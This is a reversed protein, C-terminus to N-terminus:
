LTSGFFNYSHLSFPQRLVHAPFALLMMLTLKGGYANSATFRARQSPTIKIELIHDDGKSAEPITQLTLTEACLFWMTCGSSEFLGCTKGVILLVKRGVQFCRSSCILLLYSFNSQCSSCPSFLGAGFSRLRLVRGGAGEWSLWGSPVGELSCQGM